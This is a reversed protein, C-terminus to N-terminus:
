QIFAKKITTFTKTTNASPPSYPHLTSTFLKYIICAMAIPMYAVVELWKKSSIIIYQKIIITPNHITINLNHKEQIIKQLQCVQLCAHPMVVKYNDTLCPPTIQIM